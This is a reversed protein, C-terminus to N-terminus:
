MGESNNIHFLVECSTIWPRILFSYKNFFHQCKFYFILEVLYFHVLVSCGQVFFPCKIKRFFILENNNMTIILPMM